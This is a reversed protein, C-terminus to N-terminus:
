KSPSTGSMEGMGMRGSEMGMGPSENELASPVTKDLGPPVYPILTGEAPQVGNRDSGRGQGNMQSRSVRIAEEYGRQSVMLAQQIAARAAEPARELVQQLVAQHRAANRELIMRLAM